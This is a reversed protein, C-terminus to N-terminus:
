RGSPMVSALTAVEVKTLKLDSPVENVFVTYRVEEEQVSTVKLTTEDMRFVEQSVLLPDPTANEGLLKLRPGNAFDIVYRQEEDDIFGVHDGDTWPFIRISM